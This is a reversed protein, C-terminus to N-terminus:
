WRQVRKVRYHKQKMMSERRKTKTKSQM